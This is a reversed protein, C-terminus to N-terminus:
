IGLWSMKVYNTKRSLEYHSICILCFRVLQHIYWTKNTTVVSSIWSKSYVLKKRSSKIECSIKGVFRQGGKNKYFLLLCISTWPLLYERCPPERFGQSFKECAFFLKNVTNQQQTKIEKRAIEIKIWSNILFIYLFLHYCVHVINM